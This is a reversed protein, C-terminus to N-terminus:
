QLLEAVLKRDSFELRRDGIIQYDEHGKGAVLVMDGDAAQGIARTIAVARDHIVEIHGRDVVGGVIQRVIEAPAEGRPNDDTVIVRDALEAAIRGMAPRKVQDRDGGCGFVCILTGQCHIRLSRLVKDLADPTHAYDVVVTVAGNSFREMRGPVAQLHSVRAAVEALPLDLSILVGATALLNSVSFEGLLGSRVPAQGGDHWLDFSIGGADYNLNRAQVTADESTGYSLLNIERSMERCLRRGFEDDINVVAHRVGHGTFLLRKAEGYADMDGHYDLHDHSLNTFVGVDFKLGNVRGQHLGHSSVEMVAAQAGSDVFQRLSRNLSISDPTTNPQVRLDDSFGSGLTGILGCRSDGDLSRAVFSAVSTKGNTGTVGILKLERSPHQFFRAAVIGLRQRLEPVPVVPVQAGSVGTVSEVSAAQEGDRLVAVAGATVAQAIFEGGDHQEGRLAVFLDGPGIRRSDLELGGVMIAELGSVPTLGSVLEALSILDRQTAMAAMM